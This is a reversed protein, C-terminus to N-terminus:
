FCDDQLILIQVSIRIFTQKFYTPIKLGGFGYCFLQAKLIILKSWFGLKGSFVFAM